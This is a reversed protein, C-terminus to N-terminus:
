PSLFKSSVWGSGIYSWGGQNYQVQVKDNRYVRGVVPYQTGPGKRVNLADPAMVVSATSAAPAPSPPSSGPAPLPSPVPPSKAAYHDMLLTPLEGLNLVLQKGVPNDCGYNNVINYADRDGADRETVFRFLMVLLDGAIQKGDRGSQLSVMTQGAVAVWGGIQISLGRLQTQLPRCHPAHDVVQESDMAKFMGFAYAMFPAPNDEIPAFDLTYIAEAYEPKSFLHKNFTRKAIDATIEDQAVECVPIGGQMNCKEYWFLATEAAPAESPPLGKGWRYADGLKKMAPAYGLDAAEVFAMFSEDYRAALQLSRGLQYRIRANGPVVQVAETCALVAKGVPLDAEGVGAEMRGPDDPDSALKDCRDILTQPDPGPAPPPQPPAATPPPQPAGAQAGAPGTQGTTDTSPDGCGTLLAAAALLGTLTGAVGQWPRLAGSRRLRHPSGERTRLVAPAAPLRRAALLPTRRTSGAM